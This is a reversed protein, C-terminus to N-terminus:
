RPHCLYLTLGESVEALDLNLVEALPPSSYSRLYRYGSLCIMGQLRTGNSKPVYM